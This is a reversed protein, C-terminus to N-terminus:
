HNKQSQPWPQLRDGPGCSLLSFNKSEIGEEHLVWNRQTRAHAHTEFYVRDLTPSSSPVRLHEVLLALQAHRGTHKSLM